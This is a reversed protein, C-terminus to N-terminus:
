DIKRHVPSNQFMQWPGCLELFTNYTKKQPPSHTSLMYMSVPLYFLSIFCSPIEVKSILKRIRM